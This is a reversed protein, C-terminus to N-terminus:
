TKRQKIEKDQKQFIREIKTHKNKMKKVIKERSQLKILHEILESKSCNFVESLLELENYIPTSLTIKIRKIEPRITM